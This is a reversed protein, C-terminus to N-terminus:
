DPKSGARLLDWREQLEMSLAQSEEARSVEVGARLHHPHNRFRASWGQTVGTGRRRERNRGASVTLHVGLLGHPDRLRPRRLSQRIDRPARTKADEFSAGIM